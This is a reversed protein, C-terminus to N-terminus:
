GGETTVQAGMSDEERIENIEDIWMDSLLSSRVSSGGIRVTGPGAGGWVGAYGDPCHCQFGNPLDQCRGGNLCPQSACEDVEVSCDAGALPGPTPGAQVRLALCPSLPDMRYSPLGLSLSLASDPTPHCLACSGERPVQVRASRKGLLPEGEFGPPCLCLFGAAHRFSFVDPFAPQVGGYLAPDSRQLCQGGHQCPSAACEDEDVECREGSYGSPACVRADSRVPDGPLVEENDYPCVGPWCLCRFSGLGELCSANHACPASACELVEQECHAGEYGTGACDCQFRPLARPRLQASVPGKLGM